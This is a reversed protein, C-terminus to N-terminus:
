FITAARHSEKPHRIVVVANGSTSLTSNVTRQMNYFKRKCFIPRTFLQTSDIWLVLIENVFTKYNHGVIFEIKHLFLTSWSIIVGSFYDKFYNLYALVPKFFSVVKVEFSILYLISKTRFLIMPFQLNKKFHTVFYSSWLYLCSPYLCM